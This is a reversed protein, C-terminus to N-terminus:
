NETPKKGLVRQHAREIEALVDEPRVNKELQALERDRDAIGMQEQIKDLMRLVRTLEHETLLGIQLDLDARREAQDSLRNQSILVFTSLFIAELSVVMTLLGYPFPDFAKFGFWGTNALIWAGFWVVHLYVFAMHGSFDTIADAIRGQLGRQRDANRRLQTLRQINRELVDAIRLPHAPEAAEHDSSEM